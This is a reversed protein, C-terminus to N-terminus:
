DRDFHKLTIMQGYEINSSENAAFNDSKWETPDFNIPFRTAKPQKNGM